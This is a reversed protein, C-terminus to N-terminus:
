KTKKNTYRDWVDRPTYEEMLVRYGMLQAVSACVTQFMYPIWWRLPGLIRARPYIILASGSAQSTLNLMYLLYLPAPTNTVSQTLMVQLFDMARKKEAADSFYCLLNQFFLWDMPNPVSTPHAWFLATTDETAAPDPWFRHPTWTKIQHPADQPTWIRDSCDYLTTTGM